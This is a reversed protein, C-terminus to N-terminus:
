WSGARAADAWALGHRQPETGQSGSRRRKRHGALGSSRRVAAGRRADRGPRLGAGAPGARFEHPFASRIGGDDAGTRRSSLLSCGLGAVGGMAALALSETVLQRILRGRSAGLSLRLAIEPKRAAGRALLLNALNACAILLLVGVAALLATLSTSFEHRTQSAGRAAPRIRLRQDLFERRREGSAVAGYFSELGAQFIANAQAEAQALTVGPKLRGFVHLWMAKSPPTDHLWDQGPMVSPQMRLPLWLDPQQGSTEGIFGPPAVGIITLAAKRLTVTKGLVDPRGGFRRQWYNYSIVASPTEARDEATTFM